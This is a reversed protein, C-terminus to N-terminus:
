IARYNVKIGAGYNGSRLRTVGMPLGLKTQKRFCQNRQNVADSALRLNRRRNDLGNGNIHDVPVGRPADMIIRHMSFTGRGRGRENGHTTAYYTNRGKSAFWRWVSFAAYDVDDVLAVMGQTLQIRRM